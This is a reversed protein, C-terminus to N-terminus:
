LLPSCPRRSIVHSQSFLSVRFRSGKHLRSLSFSNYGALHTCTFTPTNWTGSWYAALQDTRRAESFGRSRTAITSGRRMATIANCLLISNLLSQFATTRTYRLQVGKLSKILGLDNAVNLCEEVYRKRRAGEAGEADVEAFRSGLIGRQGRKWEGEQRQSDGKELTSVEPGRNHEKSLPPRVRSLYELM